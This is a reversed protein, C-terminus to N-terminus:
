EKSLIFFYLFLVGKIKNIKNIKSDIYPNDKCREDVLFVIIIIKQKKSIAELIIKNTYEGNKKIKNLYKKQNKRGRFNRRRSIKHKWHM